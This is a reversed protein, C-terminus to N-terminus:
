NNVFEYTAVNRGGYGKPHPGADRVAGAAKLTKLVRQVQGPKFGSAEVIEAMSFPEDLARMAAEVAAASEGPKNRQPADPDDPRRGHPLPRKYTGKAMDAIHATRESTLGIMPALHEYKIGHVRHLTLVDNSRTWALHRSGDNLTGDPLLLQQLRVARDLTGAGEILPQLLKDFPTPLQANQENDPDRAMRLVTYVRGRTIGLDNVLDPVTSGAEHLALVDLTRLAKMSKQLQPWADLAQTLRKVRDILGDVDGMGTKLATLPDLHDAFIEPLKPSEM